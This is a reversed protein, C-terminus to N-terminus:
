ATFGEEVPCIDAIGLFITDACPAGRYYIVIRYYIKSHRAFKSRRLIKLVTPDKPHLPPEVTSVCSTM